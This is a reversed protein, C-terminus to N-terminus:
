KWFKTFSSWKYRVHWCACPQKSNSGTSGDFNGCKRHLLRSFIIRFMGCRFCCQHLSYLYMEKFTREFFLFFSFFMHCWDICLPNVHSELLIQLLQVVFFFFAFHQKVKTGKPSGHFKFTSDLCIDWIYLSWQHCQYRYHYHCFYSRNTCFFDM